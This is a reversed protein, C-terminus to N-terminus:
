QQRMAEDLVEFIRPHACNAVNFRLYSRSADSVSFVDGPAFIVDRALAYRAIDAANLGNPLSAWLFVGAKPEIFPTLGLARVRRLTEGMAAALKARLGDMHRHYTGDTLLRHMLVAALHGNGLTMALKLDVLPELWDSRVAIYGCRIAASMTKSFSGVQIVRDLGDFGALRPSPEEEFDAFIDDEIVITGHHEALKLVRHATAPSLSAGTPNHLGSNTLYFRPKHELLARGFAEVDPGDRTFPVGVVRLRHARLLAHYNFYCPDDVLVTDGPEVLFRCLLDLAHSASDTLMIQDAGATVGREGLRWALQQRLPAFGLPTDYHVRASAHERAMQRLAKQVAADPMLSSPLWGSGPKLVTPGAQLSQRTLWLPDVARDLQPGIAALSLPRTTGAVFFGSGRRSVITGAAILRDYAEVVTSKSVDMSAALARISPLKAGPTLTRSDIRAVIAGMVTEVLTAGVALRDTKDLM